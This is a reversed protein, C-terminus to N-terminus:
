GTNPFEVKATAGASEATENFMREAEAVENYAGRIAATAIIRSM